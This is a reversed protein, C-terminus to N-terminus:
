ISPKVQRGLPLQVIQLSRPSQLWRPIRYPAYVLDSHIEDSVVIVNHKTCISGVRRLEDSTWVRGVPNHPSSLILM